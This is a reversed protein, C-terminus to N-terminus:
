LTSGNRRPDAQGEIEPVDVARQHPRARRVHVTVARLRAEVDTLYESSRQFKDRLIRLTEDLIEDSVALEIHGDQAMDLLTQPKGGFQLASVYLNTDATVRRM